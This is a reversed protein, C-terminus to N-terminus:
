SLVWAEERNGTERMKDKELDLKDMKLVFKACTSHVLANGNLISNQKRLNEEQRRGFGGEGSCAPPIYAGYRGM